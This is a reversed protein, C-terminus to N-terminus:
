FHCSVMDYMHILYSSLYTDRAVSILLRFHSVDDLGYKDGNRHLIGTRLAEM